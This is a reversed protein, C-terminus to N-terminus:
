NTTPGWHTPFPFRLTRRWSAAHALATKPAGSGKAVPGSLRVLNFLGAERLGYAIEWFKYRTVSFGLRADANMSAARGIQKPNQLFTLMERSSAKRVAPPMLNPRQFVKAMAGRANPGLRIGWQGQPNPRRRAPRNKLPYAIFDLGELLTSESGDQKLLRFESQDVKTAGSAALARSAIGVGCERDYKTDPVSYSLLATRFAEDRLPKGATSNYPREYGSWEQTPLGIADQRDAPTVALCIQADGESAIGSDKLGGEM